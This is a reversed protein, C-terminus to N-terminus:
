AVEKVSGSNRASYSAAVERALRAKLAEVHKCSQRYEFGKCSCGVIGDLGAVLAYRESPNSKSKTVYCGPHHAIAFIHVHECRARQMARAELTAREMPARGSALSAELAAAGAPTVAWRTMARARAEQRAICANGNWCLWESHASTIRRYGTDTDDGCRWCRRDEPTEQLTSQPNSLTTM